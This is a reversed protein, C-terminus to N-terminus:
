LVRQHRLQNYELHKVRFNTTM